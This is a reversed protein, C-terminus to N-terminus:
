VGRRERNAVFLPCSRQPRPFGFTRDGNESCLRLLLPSGRRIKRETDDVRQLIGLFGDRGHRCTKGVHRIGHLRRWHSSSEQNAEGKGTEGARYRGRFGGGLLFLGGLGARGLRFAQSELEALCGCGRDRRSGLPRMRAAPPPSTARRQSTSSPLSIAGVGPGACVTAKERPPQRTM